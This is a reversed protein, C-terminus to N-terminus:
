DPSRQTRLVAHQGATTTERLNSPPANFGAQQAQEHIKARRRVQNEWHIRRDMQLWQRTRSVEDAGDELIPRMKSLYAILSARFSEIAETSTVNANEPM